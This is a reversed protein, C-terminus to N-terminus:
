NINDIVKDVIRSDKKSLEFPNLAAAGQKKTGAAGTNDGDEDSEILKTISNKMKDFPETLWNKLQHKKLYTYYDGSYRHDSTEVKISLLDVIFEPSEFLDPYLMPYIADASVGGGLSFGFDAALGALGSADTGGEPALKVECNYFRPKPFVWLASLAAVIVWMIFFQKRHAVCVAFIERLNIVKQEDSFNKNEEKM